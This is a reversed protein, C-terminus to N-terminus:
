GANTSLKKSCTQAVIFFFINRRMKQVDDKTNSGSSQASFIAHDYTLASCFKKQKRHMPTVSQNCSSTVEGEDLLRCTCLPVMLAPSNDKGRCVDNNVSLYSPCRVTGCEHRKLEYQGCYHKNSSAAQKVSGIHCGECTFFLM